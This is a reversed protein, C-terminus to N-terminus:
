ISTFATRIVDPAHAKPGMECALVNRRQIKIHKLSRKEKDRNMKRVKETKKYFDDKELNLVRKNELIRYIVNQQRKFNRIKREKM